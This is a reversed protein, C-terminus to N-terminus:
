KALLLRDLWVITKRTTMYPHSLQVMFFASHWLISTKLNHHQLLSKLIGQVALLDIWYTRFSILGLYESSLSISFTFGWYKPWRIHVASENSTWSSPFSQSCFSFLADSSSVGPCCWCHLSRSSLCVGPSPSPCPSRAQQLGHPWLSSTVVPCSFLM